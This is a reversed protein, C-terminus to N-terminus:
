RRLDILALRPGFRAGADSRFVEIKTPIRVGGPVPAYDYGRVLLYRQEGPNALWIMDVSLSDHNQFYIGQTWYPECVTVREHGKERSVTEKPGFKAEVPQYWQGAIQMPIPRRNLSVSTELLRVPVTVIQMVADAYEHYSGKLPSVDLAPDGDITGRGCVVQWSIRVRPEGATVQISDSWPYLTFQHETLYVGGDSHYAAVIAAFDLRTTQRWASLGGLAEISPVVFPQPASTSVLGAAPLGSDRSPNRAVQRGCGTLILGTLVTLVVNCVVKAVM